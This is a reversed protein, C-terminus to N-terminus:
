YVRLCLLIINKRALSTIAVVFDLAVVFDGWKMRKGVGYRVETLIDGM